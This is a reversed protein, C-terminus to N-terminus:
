RECHAGYQARLFISIRAVGGGPANRQVSVYEAGDPPRAENRALVHVPRCHRPARRIGAHQLYETTEKAHTTGARQHHTNQEARIICVRVCITETAMYRAVPM